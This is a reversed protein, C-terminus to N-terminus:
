YPHLIGANIPYFDRNNYLYAEDLVSYAGQTVAAKNIYISLTVVPQGDPEEIGNPCYMLQVFIAPVPITNYIYAELNQFVSEVLCLFFM